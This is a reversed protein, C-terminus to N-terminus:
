LTLSAGRLVPLEGAETVYTRDIADLELVFDSM